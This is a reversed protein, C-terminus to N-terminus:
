DFATNCTRAASASPVRTFSNAPLGGAFQDPPDLKLVANGELHTWTRDQTTTGNRLLVKDGRLEYGTDAVTFCSVTSTAGVTEKVARGWKGDSTFWYRLTSSAGAARTHVADYVGVLAPGGEETTSSDGCSTIAVLMVLSAVRAFNGTRLSM